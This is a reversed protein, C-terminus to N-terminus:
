KQSEAGDGHCGEEFTACDTTNSIYIM